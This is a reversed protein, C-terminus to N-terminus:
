AALREGAAALRERVRRVDDRAVAQEILALLEGDAAGGYLKMKEAAAAAICTVDIGAAVSGRLADVAREADGTTWAKGYAWWGLGAARLPGNEAYKATFRFLTGDIEIRLAM